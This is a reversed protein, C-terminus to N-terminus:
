KTFNNLVRDVCSYSILCGAPIEAFEMKKNNLLVVFPVYSAGFQTLISHGENTNGNIKTFKCKNEYKANIKKYIPNFNNCVRCEPTYIYLLAKDYNKHTNDFQGAFVPILVFAAAFILILFIIIKKM